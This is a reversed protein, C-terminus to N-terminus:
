NSKLTEETLSLGLDAGNVGEQDNTNMKVLITAAHHIAQPSGDDEALMVRVVYGDWYVGQSIYSQLFKQETLRKNKMWATHGVEASYTAWTIGSIPAKDHNHKSEVMIFLYIALGATVVLIAYFLMARTM